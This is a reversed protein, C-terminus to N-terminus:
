CRTLDFGLGRKLILVNLNEIILLQKGRNSTCYKHLVQVKYKSPCNM